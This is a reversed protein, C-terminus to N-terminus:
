RHSAFVRTSGDRRVVWSQPAAVRQAHAICDGDPLPELGTIPVHLICVQRLVQATSLHAITSGKFGWSGHASALEVPFRLEGTQVSGVPNGYVDFFATSSRSQVGLAAGSRFATISGPGGVLKKTFSRPSRKDHKVLIVKRGDQHFAALIYRPHLTLRGRVAPVEIPVSVTM